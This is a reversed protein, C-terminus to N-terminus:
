LNQPFGSLLKISLISLVVLVIQNFRERSIHQALYQGVPMFAILPLLSLTSLMFNHPTLLGYGVLMPVQVIGLAVFFGSITSIFQERELNLLSLFTISVPSSLGASGQLAGAIVGLPFSLRLGLKESLAWNPQLVRFGVYVVIIGGLVRSLTEADVNALLFTGIGAGIGGATAFSLVFAGSPRNKRYSWTQWINPILNPISFITVAFPMDFFIALLPVAFLPAGFGTAGKLIGGFAFAIAIILATDM